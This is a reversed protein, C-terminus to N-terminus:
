RGVRFVKASNLNVVGRKVAQKGRIPFERIKLCGTTYPLLRPLVHLRKDSFINRKIWRLGSAM